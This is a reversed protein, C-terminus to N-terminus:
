RNICIKWTEIISKPNMRKWTELATKTVRLNKNEPFVRIIDTIFEVLHTNFAKLISYEMSIVLIKKKLKNVNQTKYKKSVDKNFKEWIM